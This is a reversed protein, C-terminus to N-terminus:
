QEVNRLVQECFRNWWSQCKGKAEKLSRAQGCAVTHWLTDKDKIDVCWQSEVATMQILRTPTAELCNDDGCYPKWDLPLVTM